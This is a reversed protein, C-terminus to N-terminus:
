KNILKKLYEANKELVEKIRKEEEETFESAKTEHETIGLLYDSSCKLYNCLIRIQDENLKSLNRDLRQMQSESINLINGLEKLTIDKQKRIKRLNNM